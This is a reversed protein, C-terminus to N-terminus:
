CFRHRWRSVETQLQPIHYGDDVGQHIVQQRLTKYDLGKALLENCRLWVYERATAPRPTNIKHSRYKPKEIVAALDGKVVLHGEGRKTLVAKATAIKAYTKTLDTM